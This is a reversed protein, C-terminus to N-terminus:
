LGARRTVALTSGAPLARVQRYMTLPEPVSGWGLFGLLATPDIERLIAPDLCLARLSSAFRFSKGDDSYYLPKIGHPDRALFLTESCSDWVAFAFMGRLRHVMQPGERLYLHLLVETDTATKFRSGSAEIESRLARYNYIEGNFTITLGAASMPQIGAESLDVIALRRHGLVCRGSADGFCGEGDPGRERMADRVAVCDVESPPPAGDRYVFIGNIACMRLFSPAQQFQNPRRQSDSYIVCRKWPIPGWGEPELPAPERQG